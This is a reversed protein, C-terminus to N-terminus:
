FISWIDRQRPVAGRAKSYKEGTPQLSFFTMFFVAFIKGERILWSM